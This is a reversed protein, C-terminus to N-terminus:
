YTQARRIGIWRMVGLMAFAALGMWAAAPVPVITGPTDPSPLPEPELALTTRVGFTFGHWTEPQPVEWSFTSFVGDFQITGHGENGGLVNGPLEQLRDSGGGWFGAGQSVITFPSDFEYTIPIAGSGLSVIAMIPDRIPESLTVTYIQNVGGVLAVIDSDPPANEVESSIYPTQPNWYNTGGATQAFFLNGPSGNAFTAAFDVNIPASGPVNIVGSATGASTDATQWDLYYAPDAQVTGASLVSAGLASALLARKM